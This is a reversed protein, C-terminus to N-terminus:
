AANQDARRTNNYRKVEKEELKKLIERLQEISYVVFVEHGFTRLKQIIEAQTPSLTNRGVKLEIFFHKGNKGLVLLDPFGKIFGKTNKFRERLYENATFVVIFGHWELFEIVQKRLDSEHM